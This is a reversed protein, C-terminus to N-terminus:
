NFTLTNKFVEIIQPCAHCQVHISWVLCAYRLGNICLCDSFSLLGNAKKPSTELSSSRSVARLRLALGLTAVGLPFVTLDTQEM